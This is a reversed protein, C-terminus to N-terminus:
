KTLMKSTSCFAFLYYGTEANDGPFDFDGM